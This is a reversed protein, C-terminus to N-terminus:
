HTVHSAVPTSFNFAVNSFTTGRVTLQPLVGTFSTQTKLWDANAEFMSTDGLTEGTASNPVAKFSLTEEHGPRRATVAFSEAAIRVFNEFEGDFVYADLKGAPADFVLELKYDEGLPVPIGGHPPTDHHLSGGSDAVPTTAQEGCGALFGATLALLIIPWFASIKM